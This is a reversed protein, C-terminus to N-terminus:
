SRFLRTYQTEHSLSCWEVVLAAGGIEDLPTNEAERAARVVAPELAALVRQGDSQGLPVLRVAASVLNASVAQLYLLVAPGRPIGACAACAAVALPYVLAPPAEPEGLWAALRGAPDPWAALVTRAFAAGQARSELALEATPALAAGIARLEAFAAPDGAAVADHGRALLVADTRPGGHDLLDGLWLALGAADRVLGAEIARELGHSYSYAGVPFAPSLWSALRYLAAEATSTPTTRM